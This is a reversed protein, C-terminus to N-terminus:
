RVGKSPQAQIDGNYQGRVAYSRDHPVPSSGRFFIMQGCKMGATLLLAHHQLENKFALTLVSDHWGPDAFGAHLHGLASRALSSKLLYHGAVDNPLHFVQETQALLFEGPPLLFEDRITSYMNPSEKRALDVPEHANPPSAEWWFTNGLTLDISAGNIQDLEVNEIAGSEVLTVLENYTLISM